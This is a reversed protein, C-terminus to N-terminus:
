DEGSREAALRGVIVMQEHADISNWKPILSDFLLRQLAENFAAKFLDKM